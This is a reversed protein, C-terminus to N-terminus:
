YINSMSTPAELSPYGLTISYDRECDVYVPYSLCWVDSTAGFADWGRPIYYLM